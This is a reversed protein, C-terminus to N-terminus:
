KGGKKKKEDMRLPVLRKLLAKGVERNHEPKCAVVTAKEVGDDDLILTYTELQISGDPTKFTAPGTPNISKITVSTM